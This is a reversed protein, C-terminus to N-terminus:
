DGLLPALLERAGKLLLEEALDRGLTEADEPRGERRGRLQQKGDPSLVRGDLLFRGGEERAHAAIPVRCGGGLGALFSREAAAARASPVHNLRSVWAQTSGDDARLEVAVCGQGPAPVMVDLSLVESIEETKGLRRLGAYALVAGDLHGEAVKRLRTDLNGRLDEIVLKNPLTKLFAQRRLSSTGVRSRKPLEFLQEGFRSVLCDRPDERELVAGVALGAPLETPLDKLSHVALDVTGDLLADEIEKTFVGKGGLRALSAEAMKDGTTKIVRLEVRLDPSLAELRKKVDESQVLALPSGRTGIKILAM